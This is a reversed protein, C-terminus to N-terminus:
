DKEAPRRVEADPFEDLSGQSDRVWSKAFETVAMADIREYFADFKKQDVM